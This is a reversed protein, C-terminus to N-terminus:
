LNSIPVERFEVISRRRAVLGVKAWGLLFRHGAIIAIGNPEGRAEIPLIGSGSSIQKM